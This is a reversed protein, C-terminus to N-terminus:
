AWGIAEKHLTIPIQLVSYSCFRGLLNEREMIFGINPYVSLLASHNCYMKANM